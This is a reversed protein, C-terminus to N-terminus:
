QSEPPWSSKIAHAVGEILEELSALQRPAIPPHFVVTATGGRSAIWYLFGAKSTIFTWPFVVLAAPPVALMLFLIALVTRLTGIM